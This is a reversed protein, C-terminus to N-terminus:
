IELIFVSEGKDDLRTLNSLLLQPIQPKWLTTTHSTPLNSSKLGALYRFMGSSWYGSNPM